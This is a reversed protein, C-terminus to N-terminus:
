TLAADQLKIINFGLIKKATKYFEDLFGRLENLFFTKRFVNSVKAETGAEPAV